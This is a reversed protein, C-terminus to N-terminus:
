QLIKVETLFRDWNKIKTRAIIKVARTQGTEKHVVTKVEGYTGKGLSENKDM